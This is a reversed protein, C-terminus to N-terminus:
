HDGAPGMRYGESEILYRISGDGSQLMTVSPVTATMFEIAAVTVNVFEGLVTVAIPNKWDDPDCVKDFVERLLEPAYGRHTIAVVM